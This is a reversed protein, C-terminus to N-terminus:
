VKMHIPTASTISRINSFHYNRCEVFFRQIKFIFTNYSMCKRYRIKTSLNYQHIFYYPLNFNKCVIRKGEIVKPALAFATMM